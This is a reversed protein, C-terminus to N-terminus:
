TSCNLCCRLIDVHLQPRYEGWRGGQLRKSMVAYIDLGDDPPLNAGRHDAPEVTAATQSQRVGTIEAFRRSPNVGVLEKQALFELDAPARTQMNEM